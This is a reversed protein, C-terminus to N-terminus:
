DLCKFTQSLCVLSLFNSALSTQLALALVALVVCLFGTKFFFFCVFVLFLIFNIFFLCITQYKLSISRFLIYKLMSLNHKVKIKLGFNALHSRSEDMIQTSLPSIGPFCFLKRYLRLLSLIPPLPWRLVGISGYHPLTHYLHGDAFERKM